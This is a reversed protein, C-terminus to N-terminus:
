FGKTKAGAVVAETVVVDGPRVDGEAIETVM